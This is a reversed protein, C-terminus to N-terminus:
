RREDRTTASRFLWFLFALPLGIFLRRGSRSDLVSDGDRQVYVPTSYTNIGFNNADSMAREGSTQAAIAAREARLTEVALREEESLKSDEADPVPTVAQNLTAAPVSAGAVIAIPRGDLRLSQQRGDADFGLLDTHDSQRAGVIVSSGDARFATERAGYVQDFDGNVYRRSHIDFPDQIVVNFDFSGGLIPWETFAVRSGDDSIAPDSVEKGVHAVLEVSGDSLDILRLTTGVRAFAHSGSPTFAVEAAEDGGDRYIEQGDESRLVVFDLAEAESRAETYAIFGARAGVFEIDHTSSVLVTPDAVSEPDIAVAVIEANATSGFIVAQGDSSWGLRSHPAANALQRRNSGDIRTVVISASGGDTEAPLSIYAVNKGEPGVVASTTTEGTQSVSWTDSSALSHAFISGKDRFVLVEHLAVYEAEDIPDDSLDSAQTAQVEEIQREVTPETIAPAVANVVRFPLGDVGLDRMSGDLNILTPRMAGSQVLGFVMGTSDPLWTQNVISSAEIRETLNVRDEPQEIDVLYLSRSWETFAAMQGDPSVRPWTVRGNPQIQRRVPDETGLDLVVLGDVDTGFIVRNGGDGIAAQTPDAFPRESIQEGSAIDQVLLEWSGQITEWYVLNRTGAGVLRSDINRNSRERREGTEINLSEVVHHQKAEYRADFFVHESDPSWFVEHVISPPVPLQRMDSGDTNVVFMHGFGSPGSTHFVLKSGDPAADARAISVGPPTVEWTEGTTLSVAIVRGSQTVFVTPQPGADQAAAPDAGVLILVSVTAVLLMAFATRAALFKEGNAM